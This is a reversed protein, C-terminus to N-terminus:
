RLPNVTTNLLMNKDLLGVFWPNFSSSVSLLTYQSSNNKDLLGVFWPNFRKTM